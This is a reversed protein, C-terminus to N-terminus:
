IREAPRSNFGRSLAQSLAREVKGPASGELAAVRVRPIAIGLWAASAPDPVREEPPECHANLVLRAMLVARERVVGLGRAELKGHLVEPARAWLAGGSTWLQVRDDAVLAWGREMLRLALDSKGSGSPGTVLVGCWAGAVRRALCGAHVIM